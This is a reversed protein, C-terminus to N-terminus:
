SAIGQPHFRREVERVAGRAADTVSRQRGPVESLSKRPTIPIPSTTTPSTVCSKRAVLCQLAALWRIEDEESPAGVVYTRKPTIIKFCHEYSKSSSNPTASPTPFSLASSQSRPMAVSPAYEIADLINALPIQRHVKIDMHSRSYVLSSSTLVFWRKRWNRRKGQKILYGSLIVKNPDEFGSTAAVATVGGGQERKGTTGAVNEPQAFAIRQSGGQTDQSEGVTTGSATWGWPENTDFGDEEDSSSIVGGPSPPGHDGMLGSPPEIALSSVNSGGRPRGPVALNGRLDSASTREALYSGRKGSVASFSSTGERSEEASSSLIKELGADLSNLELPNPAPLGLGHTSYSNPPPNPVYSGTALTHNRSTTSSTSTASNPPFSPSSPSLPTASSRPPIPIASSSANPTTNALPTAEGSGSISPTDLSTVTGAAKMEEKAREVTSCWSAVEAASNAKVYFTRSPTVIGFAFLHKKLEIPACTHIETLPILRLLQYEKDNKYMAVQGGRLVFWRKKWGRRREGKKFLYGSMQAVSDNIRVATDSGTRTSGISRPANISATGEGGGISSTDSDSGSINGDSGESIASLPLPSSGAAAVAKLKKEEEGSAKSTSSTSAQARKGISIRM